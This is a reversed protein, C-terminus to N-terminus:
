KEDWFEILGETNLTGKKVREGNQRMLDEVTTSTDSFIKLHDSMVHRNKCSPCTILVTGHHYGQKSM